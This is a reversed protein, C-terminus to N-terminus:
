SNFIKTMKIKFDNEFTCNLSNLVNLSLCDGGSGLEEKMVKQVQTRESLMINELNMWTIAQILAEDKKHAFTKENYQKVM